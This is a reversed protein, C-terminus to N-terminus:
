DIGDDIGVQTLEKQEKQYEKDSQIDKFGEMWISKRKELEFTKQMQLLSNIIVQTKSIKYEKSLNNLIIGIEENLAINLRQM